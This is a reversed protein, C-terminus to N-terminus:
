FLLRSTTPDAPGAAPWSTPFRASTQITSRTTRRLRTNEKKRRANGAIFGFMGDSGTVVEAASRDAFLTSTGLRARVEARALVDPGAENNRVNNIHM